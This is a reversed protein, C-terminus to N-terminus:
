RSAGILEIGAINDWPIILVHRDASESPRDYDRGYLMITHIVVCGNYTLAHPLSAEEVSVLTAECSAVIITRYGPRGLNPVTVPLPVKFTFQWVRPDSHDPAPLDPSTVRGM